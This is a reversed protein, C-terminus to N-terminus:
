PPATPQVGDTIPGAPAPAAPKRLLTIIGAMFLLLGIFGAAGIGIIIAQPEAGIEHGLISVMVPDDGSLEGQNILYIYGAFGMVGLGLLIRLLGSILRMPAAKQQGTIATAPHDHEQGQV